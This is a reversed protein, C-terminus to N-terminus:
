RCAQGGQDSCSMLKDPVAAIIAAADNVIATTLNKKRLSAKLANHKRKREAAVHSRSGQAGGSTRFVNKSKTTEAIVVDAAAVDSPDVLEASVLFSRTNYVGFSMSAMATDEPTISHSQENIAVVSTVDTMASAAAAARAADTSPRLVLACLSSPPSLSPYMVSATARVRVNETDREASAGGDGDSGLPAPRPRSGAGAAITGVTFASSM